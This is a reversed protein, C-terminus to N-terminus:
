GSRYPAGTPGMTLDFRAREDIGFLSMVYEGTVPRDLRIEVYEGPAATLGKAAYQQPSWQTWYLCWDTLVLANGDHTWVGWVKVVGPAVVELEVLTIRDDPWLSTDEMRRDLWGPLYRPTKPATVRIHGPAQAFEIDEDDVLIKVHGGRMRVVERGRSDSVSLSLLVIDDDVLRLRVENGPSLSFAVIGQHGAVAITGLMLKADTSPEVYLHGRKQLDTRVIRKWRRLTSDPVRLEGHHVQDHCTPCIAIM